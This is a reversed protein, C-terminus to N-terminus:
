HLTNALENVHVTSTTKLNKRYCIKLVKTPM